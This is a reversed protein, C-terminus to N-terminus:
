KKEAKAKRERYEALMAEPDDNFLDRCGTCCVYYTTGKHTVTITGRGGTVICEPASDGVAFNAGVRTYGVEGLREFEGARAGVAEILVVTRADHLPNLTIRAVGSQPLPDAVLVLAGRANPKGVFVRETDDALEVSLRFQGMESARLTGRKLYRGEEVTMALAASEKSLSWVWAANEQWAGKASGRKVLGTGRWDGVLAGYPKLLRTQAERTPETPGDDAMGLLCSLALLLAARM